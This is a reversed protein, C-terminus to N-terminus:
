AVVTSAPYGAQTIKEALARLDLSSEFGLTLEKTELSVKAEKAGFERAIGEVKSSCGECKMKQVQLVAQNM